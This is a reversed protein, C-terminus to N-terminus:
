TVARGATELTSQQMLDTHMEAPGSLAYLHLKCRQVAGESM